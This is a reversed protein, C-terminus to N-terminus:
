AEANLPLRHLLWDTSYHREQDCGDWTGKSTAAARFQRVLLQPVNVIPNGLQVPILIEYGKGPRDRSESRIQIWGCLGRDLGRPRSERCNLRSASRERCRLASGRQWRCLSRLQFDGPSRRAPPEVGTGAVGTPTCGETQKVILLSFGTSWRVCM